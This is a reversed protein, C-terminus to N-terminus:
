WGLLHARGHDAFEQRLAGAREPTLVFYRGDVLELVIDGSDGAGWQARRLAAKNVKRTATLPMAHTIRVLRPAWKTGLDPQSALFAALEGAGLREGEAMEVAAMVQDGTQPDPVPYVAAVAIGPMRALIQEVPGAAFNESDVRLWDADRGAFWFFGDADVYGLDGSYYDGGRLRSRTAEPNDYYGEFRAEAGRGVFEGIAEEANTLAGTPDFQAVACVQGTEPDAVEVVVGPPPKGLAGAPTSPTRLITLVGESSGYNEILPCGYRRLFETRDRVSAETGFGLRLHNHAEEPREPQALVYALSRGVYTFYTARFRLIDDLFGSASFRRRLAFTAGSNVCRIWSAMLANGHFLPMANYAVDDRALPIPNVQGLFAMRGTTCVVAKPAGTSGSTFLLLYYTAPDLAQPTPAPPHAAHATLLDAWTTSDIDIVRDDDVGLDLGTLLDAYEPGTLVLDCDTARVDGALEAGRRTPNIGVLTAGSLAAAGLLFMYEPTNEMLVGVHFPRDERRLEGLVGARVASQAVYERWSWREDEFLLGSQDDEARTLLLQAVTPHEIVPIM